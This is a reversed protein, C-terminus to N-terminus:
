RSVISSTSSASRRAVAISCQVAVDAVRDRTNASGDDLGTVTMIPPPSMPKFEGGGPTWTAISMSPVDFGIMFGADINPPWPASYLPFSTSSGKTVTVRVASVGPAGIPCGDDDSGDGTGDGSGNGSGNSCAAIAWAVYACTSARM